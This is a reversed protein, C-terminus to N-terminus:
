QVSVDTFDLFANSRVRKRDDVPTRIIWETTDDQWGYRPLPDDISRISDFRTIMPICINGVSRCYKTTPDDTIMTTLLNNNQNAIKLDSSRFLSSYVQIVQRNRTIDVHEIWLLFRTSHDDTMRIRPNKSYGHCQFFLHTHPSSGFVGM